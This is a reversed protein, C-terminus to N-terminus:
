EKAGVVGMDSSKPMMNMNKLINQQAAMKLERDM